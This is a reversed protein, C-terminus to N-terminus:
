QVYFFNQKLNVPREEPALHKNKCQKIISEPVGAKHAADMMCQERGPGDNMSRCKEANPQM